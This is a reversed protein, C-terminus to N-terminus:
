YLANGLKMILDILEQCNFLHSEKYLKENIYQNFTNISDEQDEQDEYQNTQKINDGTSSNIPYIKSYKILIGFGDKESM